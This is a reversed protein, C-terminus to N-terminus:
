TCATQEWALASLGASVGYLPDTSQSRDGGLTWPIARIKLRQSIQEPMNKILAGGGFLYVQQVNFSRFQQGIYEVTRKIETLLNQLPDSIIAMTKQAIASTSQGSLAVGYHSLLQECEESTIQLNARLPQTITQMGLSRLTRVFVPRGHKVLVVLPLTNGLDIAVSADQETAMPAALAVARALACPMADLIQCALGSGLLCDALKTAMQKPMAVASMRAMGAEIISASTTDWCDFALQDPEVALDAALEEGVMRSQEAPSGAPIEFSRLEVSSMSVVSACRHGTFLRKFRSLESLVNPLGEDVSTKVDGPVLVATESPQSSRLMWRTAIRYQSGQRELQSLKVSATGLDVGIWGKKVSYSLGTRGIRSMAWQVASM